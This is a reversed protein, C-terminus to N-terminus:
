DTHKVVYEKDDIVLIKIYDGQKIQFPINPLMIERLEGSERNVLYAMAKDVAVVEYVGKVYYNEVVSVRDGWYEALPITINKMSALNELHLGKEDVRKVVWLEGNYRVISGEALDVLRVSLTLIGLWVGKRSDYRTSKFTERVHGGYLRAIEHALKRAPLQDIFRIDFGNQADEIDLIYVNFGANSEILREVDKRIASARLGRVQVLAAIRKSARATCRPCVTKTVTIKVNNEFQTFHKGNLVLNFVWKQVYLGRSVEQIGDVPEAGVLEAPGILYKGQTEMLHRRIISELNEQLWEGKYFISGCKSCVKVEISPQKAFPSGLKRFCDVCYGNVYDEDPVERGCNLCYKM